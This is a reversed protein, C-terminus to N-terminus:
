DSVRVIDGASYLGNSPDYQFALGSPAYVGHALAKKSLAIDRGSFPVGRLYDVRKGSLGMIHRQLSANSAGPLKARPGYGVLLFGPNDAIYTFNEWKTPAFPDAFYATIYSIPTTLSSFGGTLGIAITSYAFTPRDPNPEPIARGGSDLRMASEAGPSSGTSATSLLSNFLVKERDITLPYGMNDVYYSSAATALSRLSDVAYAVNRRVRGEAFYIGFALLGAAAVGVFLLIRLRGAAAEGRAAENAELAADAAFDGSPLEALSANSRTM